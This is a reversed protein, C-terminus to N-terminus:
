SGKPNGRLKNSMCNHEWSLGLSDSDLNYYPGLIIQITKKQKDKPPTNKAHPPIMSLNLVLEEAEVEWTSLYYAIPPIIPM